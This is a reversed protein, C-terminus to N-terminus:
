TKVGFKKPFCKEGYSIHTQQTQQTHLNKDQNRTRQETFSITLDRSDPKDRVLNYVHTQRSAM